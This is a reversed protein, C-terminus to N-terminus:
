SNFNHSSFCVQFKPFPFRSSSHPFHTSSTQGPWFPPSISALGGALLELSQPIVNLGSELKKLTEDMALKFPTYLPHLKDSPGGSLNSWEAWGCPLPSRIWGSPRSVQASHVLSSVLPTHEALPAKAFNVRLLVAPWCPALFSARRGM